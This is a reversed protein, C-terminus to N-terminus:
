ADIVQIEGYEADFSFDAVDLSSGYGMVGWEFTWEDSGEPLSDLFERMAAVTTSAPYSVSQKVRPKYRLREAVSSAEKASDYRKSEVAGDVFVVRVIHGTM